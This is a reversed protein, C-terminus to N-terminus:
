GGLPQAQSANRKLRKAKRIWEADRRRQFPPMHPEDAIVEDLLRVAEEGQGLKLCLEACQVRARSYGHFRLIERFRALAAENEGLASLTEALAM